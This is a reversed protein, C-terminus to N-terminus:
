VLQIPSTKLGSMELRQLPSLHSLRASPQKQTERVAAEVSISGYLLMYALILNVAIQKEM